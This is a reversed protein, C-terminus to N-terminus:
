APRGPVHSGTVVSLDQRRREASKRIQSVSTSENLNLAKRLRIVLEANYLDRLAVDDRLESVLVRLQRLEAYLEKKREPMEGEIERSIIDRVAQYDCGEYGILTRSCDAETAVYLYSMRLKGEAALAILEPHTPRREKVREFAELLKKETEKCPILKM